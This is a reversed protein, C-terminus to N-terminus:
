FDVVSRLKELTKTSPNRKGKEFQCIVVISVDSKKALEEQTLGARVRAVKLEKGLTEDM